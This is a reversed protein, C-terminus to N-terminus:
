PSKSVICLPQELYDALTQLKRRILGLNANPTAKLAILMNSVKTCALIGDELTLVAERLEDKRDFSDWISSILAATVNSADKGEKDGSYALLLGERNFLLTGTVEATNVQGLVGVLAKQRLM